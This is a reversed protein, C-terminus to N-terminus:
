PRTAPSVGSLPEAAPTFGMILPCCAPPRPPRAPMPQEGSLEPPIGAPGPISRLRLPDRSRSRDEALGASIAERLELPPREPRPPVSALNPAPRDMGPPPLRQADDKGSIRNYIAVPNVEEPVSCAGVALCLLFIALRPGKRDVGGRLKERMLGSGRKGAPANSSFRASALAPVTM